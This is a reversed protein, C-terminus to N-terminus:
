KYVEIYDLGKIRVEATDIGIGNGNGNGDMIALAEEWVAQSDLAVGAEQEIEKLQFKDGLIISGYNKAM